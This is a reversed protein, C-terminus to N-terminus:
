ATDQERGGALKKRAFAEPGFLFYVGTFYYPLLLPASWLRIKLLRPHTQPEPREHLRLLSAITSLLCYAVLLFALRRKGGLSQPTTPYFGHFSAERRQRFALAIPILAAVALWLLALSEFDFLPAEFFSSLHLLLTLLFGTGAFILGSRAGSTM